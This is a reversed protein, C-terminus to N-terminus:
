APTASTTQGIRQRHSQHGGGRRRQKHAVGGCRSSGCARLEVSACVTDIGGGRSEIVTDGSTSPTRTTVPGGTMTDNGTGGDLIDQGNGGSLTDAGTEGFLEDNNDEGLLTDSGDGGVLEDNGKLGRLVNAYGNGYLQDGHDSGIVNEISNLEDIEDHGGDGLGVSLSVSVGENSEDYAVTDIGGDGNLTDEGGGGKLMDNGSGGELRDDGGGGKLNDNDQCAESCTTSAM